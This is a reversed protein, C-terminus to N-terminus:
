AGGFVRQMETATVTPLLMPIRGGVQQAVTYAKVSSYPGVILDYEGSKAMINAKEALDSQAEDIWEIDLTIRKNQGAQAKTLNALAWATTAKWNASMEQPCIVAIRHNVTQVSETGDPEDNQCAALLLMLIIALLWNQLKVLQKM